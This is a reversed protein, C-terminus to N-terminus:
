NALESCDSSLCDFIIIFYSCYHIDIVIAALILITLLAVAVASFGHAASSPDEDGADDGDIMITMARMMRVIM